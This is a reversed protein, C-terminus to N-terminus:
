LFGAVYPIVVLPGIEEDQEEDPSSMNLTEQTPPASANHIFNASYDNQKLVRALHDVEKQLNDQTNAIERGRNHLCRGERDVPLGHVRVPTEVKLGMM